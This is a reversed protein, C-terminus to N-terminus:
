FDESNLFKSLMYYAEKSKWEPVMLGTGKVKCFTLGKYKIYYGVVNNPDDFTRLQILDKELELNLYEIWPLNGNHPILILM